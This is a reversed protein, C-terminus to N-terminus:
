SFMFYWKSWWGSKSNTFICAMIAVWFLQLVLAFCASCVALVFIKLSEDLFVLFIVLCIPRFDFNSGWVGACRKTCVGEKGAEEEGEEGGGDGEESWCM